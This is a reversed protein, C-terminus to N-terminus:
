SSSATVQSMVTAPASPGGPVPGTSARELLRGELLVTVNGQVMNQLQKMLLRATQQGIRRKPQAYTTLWAPKAPDISVDDFGAVSLDEPVRLGMQRATMAVTEAIVDNAGFIATPRRDEPLSLLERTAKKGFDLAVERHLHIWADDVPFGAEQMTQRFGTLREEISSLAPLGIFGIREHGHRILHNAVEEGGLESDTRVLNTEIGPLSRDVLILPLGRGILEILPGHEEDVNTAPSVIFGDLAKRALSEIGRYEAGPELGGAEFVAHYGWKRLEQRIGEAIPGFLPGSPWNFWVGILMSRQAPRSPKSGGSRFTGRGQQRDILGEISLESLVQRVTSRSLTFKQMLSTESPLRGGVPIRQETLQQLLHDKLLRSKSLPKTGKM